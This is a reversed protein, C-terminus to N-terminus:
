GGSRHQIGGPINVDYKTYLYNRVDSLEAETLVRDYIVIESVDADSVELPFQGGSMLGLRGPAGLPAPNTALNVSNVVFTSEGAPTGTTDAVYVVNSEALPNAGIFGDAYSSINGGWLGHLWNADRGQLTRGRVDGYYQNVIFATYPHALSLGDDILMGDSEVGSFRLAPYGNMATDNRLPVLGADPQTASFDNGSKDLWGGVPDGPGALTTFTSDQFMTTADTADLWLLLGDTVPIEQATSVSVLLVACWGGAMAFLWTSKRGRRQWRNTVGEIRRATTM